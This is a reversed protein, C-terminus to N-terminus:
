CIRPLQEGYPKQVFRKGGIRTTMTVAPSSSSKKLEGIISAAKGSEHKRCISIADEAAGEAVVAVFKGENAVNLIDLGLVDAAAQVTPNIPLDHESIAVDIKADEAIDVLVGAIGSRTPDRLFKIGDGLKQILEKVLGALIAVDSVISTEFELGERSAMVALGHDGLTGNVLIKDGPHLNDFGLKAQPMLKGVGATNVYIGDAQGHSVVKTDGTVINVNAQKASEAISKVIRELKEIEFGEEIIMALSLAIPEAGAMSLDNCTGCVALKGLDGGPFFIPSVTYSDTTFAIRSDGIEVIASDLLVPQAPLHKLIVDRLLEDTLKGGGGHALQIKNTM